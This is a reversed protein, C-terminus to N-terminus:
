SDRRLGGAVRGIIAGIATALFMTAAIRAHHWPVADGTALRTGIFYCGTLATPAATAVAVVISRMPRLTVLTMAFMGALIYPWRVDRHFAEPSRIFAEAHVWIAFAIGGAAAVRRVSPRRRRRQSLVPGVM